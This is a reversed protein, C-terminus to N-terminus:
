EQEDNDSTKVAQWIRGLGEYWVRESHSLYYASPITKEWSHLPTTIALQNAPAPVPHLGRAEFFAKARTMHSASTVLLFPANGVIKEVEEAEEETDKPLVLPLTREAPIGLSQAVEAAVEASSISNAGPGGTFILTAQPYRLALRVGEAVRPLSNSILNASPAWEPNYTFGGGLVVIYRLDQQQVEAPTILEYRKDYPKEATLLLADAVPQLSLLVLGLWGATILTKGTKQRSSFWLLLLGALMLLLMFPLPLLFGGLYKKLAFLM